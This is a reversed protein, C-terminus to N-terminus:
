WTLWFITLCLKEWICRSVLVLTRAFSRRLFSLPESTWVCGFGLLFLGSPSCLQRSTKTASPIFQHLLCWWWFSLPPTSGILFQNWAWGKDLSKIPIKCYRACMKLVKRNKDSPPSNRCPPSRQCLISQHSICAGHHPRHPALWTAVEWVCQYHVRIWRQAAIWPHQHCKDSPLVETSLAKPNKLDRNINSAFKKINKVQAFSM